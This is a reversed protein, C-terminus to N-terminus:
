INSFHLYTLGVLYKAFAPGMTFPSFVASSLKDVNQKGGAMHYEYPLKSSGKPHEKRKLKELLGKFTSVGLLYGSYIM